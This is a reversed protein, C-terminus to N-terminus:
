HYYTVTDKLDVLQVTANFTVRGTSSNLSYSPGAAWQGHSKTMSRGEFTYVNGTWWLQSYCELIIQTKPALHTTETPDLLLARPEVAANATVSSLFLTLALAGAGFFKSLKKLM